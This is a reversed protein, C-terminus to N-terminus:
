QIELWLASASRALLKALPADGTVQGSAFASRGDLAM